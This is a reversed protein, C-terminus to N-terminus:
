RKRRRRHPRLGLQEAVEHALHRSVIRAIEARTPPRRRRYELMFSDPAGTDVNRAYFTSKTIWLSRHVHSKYILVTVTSPMAITVTRDRPAPM